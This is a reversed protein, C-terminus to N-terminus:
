PIDVRDMEVVVVGPVGHELPANGMAHQRRAENGGHEAGLQRAWATDIDALIQFETRGHTDAIRHAGPDRDGGDIALLAAHGQLGFAGHALRHYDRPVGKKENLAARHGLGGFLGQPGIWRRVERTIKGGGHANEAVMGLNRDLSPGGDDGQAIEIAHMQAVLRDDGLGGPQGVFQANGAADQGELGMRAFEKLRIFRRKPERGKADLQALQLRDADIVDEQQGEVPRQGLAARFGENHFHQALPELRGVHDHAIIEDESLVAAAIGLEQVVEPPRRAKADSRERGDGIGGAHDIGRGLDALAEGGAVRAGGGEQQASGPLDLAPDFGAVLAAAQQSKGGGIEPQAVIQM